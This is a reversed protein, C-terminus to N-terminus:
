NSLLAQGADVFGRIWDRATHVQAHHHMSM